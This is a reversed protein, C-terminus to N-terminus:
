EKGRRMLSESAGAQHIYVECIVLASTRARDDAPDFQCDAWELLEVARGLCGCLAYLSLPGPQQSTLSSPLLETAQVVDRFLRRQIM